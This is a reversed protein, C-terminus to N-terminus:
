KNKNGFARDNNIFPLYIYTGPLDINPDPNNCFNIAYEVAALADIEGWGTAYNPVNGPPPAPSGGSAYPIPNATLELVDETGAYDGVLCPAAHWVLAVLGAAHPASMSTGSYLAYATDSSNVSSLISVGPALVQPKMTDYLVGNITKPNIEDENDSPGWTSHLAYIGGTKSTSGVGTVNGYRAPNSVTNLGPPLSYGCNSANGNSFVPYIGFEHWKDVAEQYWSDYTHEDADEDKCDGWSNNVVHARLDPNENKQELNWPAAVFQACALLAASTCSSNSCGRCAIWEAQPAIGIQNGAGDDGIMIGMTHTGHGHGDFPYASPDPNVQYPDWWNYNHDFSGDGLNGRYQDKVAQHTYRVGTDINAVVLGEGAYGMAWVEPAKVWSINDEVGSYMSITPLAETPEHLFIENEARITTIESFNKLGNFTSIDSNEVVIVNDIWFNQYSVEQEDLYERVGAQSREAAEQLAKMVYWGRDSWSMHSAASLDPKDSFYILYGTSGKVEFEDLLAADVEMISAVQMPSNTNGASNVSPTLLGSILGTILFISIVRLWNGIL